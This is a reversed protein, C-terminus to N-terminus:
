STAPPVAPSAWTAPSTDAVSSTAMRTITSITWLSTEATTVPSAGLIGTHHRAQETQWSLQPEQCWVTDVVKVNISVERMARILVKRQILPLDSIEGVLTNFLITFMGTSSNSLPRSPLNQFAKIYQNEEFIEGETEFNTIVGVGTINNKVNNVYIDMRLSFKLFIEVVTFFDGEYRNIEEQTMTHCYIQDLDHLPFQHYINRRKDSLSNFNRNLPDNEKFYDEEYGFIFRSEEERSRLPRILLLNLLKSNKNRGKQSRALM